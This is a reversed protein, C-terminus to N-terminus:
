QPWNHTNSDTSSDTSELCLTRAKERVFGFFLRTGEFLRDRQTGVLDTPMFSELLAFVSHSLAACEAATPTKWQILLYLTRLAPPFRSLLDFMHLIADRAAPEKDMEQVLSGVVRLKALFMAIGRDSQCIPPQWFARDRFIAEKGSTFVALSGATARHVAYVQLVGDVCMKTLESAKITSEMAAVHIPMEFTHLDLLHGRVKQDTIEAARAHAPVHRDQCCVAVVPLVTYHGSLENLQGGLYHVKKRSQLDAGFREQLKFDITVKTPV